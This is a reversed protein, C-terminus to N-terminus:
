DDENFGRMVRKVSIKAPNFFARVCDVVKDDDFERCSYVNLSLTDDYEYIHLTISSTYIIQSASMGTLKEDPDNLYQLNLRGLKRMNIDKILSNIFLRVYDRSRLFKMPVNLDKCDIILEPYTM